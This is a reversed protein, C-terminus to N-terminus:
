AKYVLEGNHVTLVVNKLDKIEELPNGDFMVIDAKKGKELTGIEDDLKMMEAATKTAAQLAQIKSMGFEVYIGAETSLTEGLPVIPTGADTGAVIPINYKLCLQITDKKRELDRPNAKKTMYMYEPKTNHIILYRTVITPCYYTGNEKMLTATTENMQIHEISRVGARAARQASENGTGTAHVMVLRGTRTAEEVAVRMMEESLLPAGPVSNKGSMSGTAGLKIFDANAKIQKRVVKRMEDPTDAESDSGGHGGGTISLYKGAAVIRCGKIKGSNILDRVLIDINNLDAANRVTTIGYKFFMSAQYAICAADVEVKDDWDGSGMHVHCDILGPTITKGSGDINLDGCLIRDGIDIIGNADFLISGKEIIKESGDFIRVNQISTKM